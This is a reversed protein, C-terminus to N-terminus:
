DGVRIRWGERGNLKKYGHPRPNDALNYIATKISSYDPENIKEMAKVARSKITLQYPM